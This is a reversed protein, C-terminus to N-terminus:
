RRRSLAAIGAFALIGAVGIAAETALMSGAGWRAYSWGNVVTMYAIPTNSLSAFLSYKTAAAGHGIAELVVASFGAYTLGTIFAYLLVFVVYMEQTRPAAAMALACGVMLAGYLAYSTKRDIRDCVYGGVVCGAASVLGSLAGNVMAVADASAHWDGAIASWLNAAAGTGIPLFCILLGLYGVRSRAVAWLDKLVDLMAHWVGQVHRVAKPEAVFLLGACCLLAVGALVAGAMWPAAMHQAMWLGAGGGLGSGGLNGAQFWGAARGKTEASTGYAMLSEVAMGLLTAAVNSALVIASLVPVMESRAPLAGIAFIGAASLVAGLLYWTKRSLTTDAVPAWLFKWTHPVYSLAVLAAVQETPLGAQALLYAVAVGLFGSMMGFPAILFLFVAPHTGPHAPSSSHM